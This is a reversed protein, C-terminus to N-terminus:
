VAFKMGDPSIKFGAVDTKFNSSQVTKGSAITYRWIQDSGSENSIYFISKGDPSFAPDHENKDPKSAFKVPQLGTSGLKLMYVDTKGKNAELDTERLQYAVM